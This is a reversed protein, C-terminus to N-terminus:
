FCFRLPFYSHNGELIIWEGRGILSIELGTIGPDWALIQFTDDHHCQVLRSMVTNGIYVYQIGCEDFGMSFYKYLNPRSDLLLIQLPTGTFDFDVFGGGYEIRPVLLSFKDRSISCIRSIGRMVLWNHLLDSTPTAQDMLYHLFRSVLHIRQDWLWNPIGGSGIGVSEQQAM